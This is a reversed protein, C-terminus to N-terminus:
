ARKKVKLNSSESSAASAREAKQGVSGPIRTAGIAPLAITIRTGEGLRSEIAMRGDQLALLGKVISLGLGTGDRPRDYSTEVQFFPDGLRPLDDEGIGIGTDVISITVYREELAAGVMIRGGNETFKVANSLLNLLIQKVARRDAMVEPLDSPVRLSLEIGVERARLALLDCCTEIVPALAFPEPTVAFNGTDIKSMDLIGNVVALLHHGSENIMQAYDRRRSPDVNLAQENALM